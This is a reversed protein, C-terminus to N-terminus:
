GPNHGYLLEKIIGLIEADKISKGMGEKGSVLSFRASRVTNVGVRLGGLSGLVLNRQGKWTRRWKVRWYPLKQPKGNWEGSHTSEM